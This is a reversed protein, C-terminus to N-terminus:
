SIYRNSDDMRGGGRKEKGKVRMSFFACVFEM